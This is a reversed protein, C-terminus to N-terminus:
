NEFYVRKIRRNLTAYIEYPITNLKKSLSLVSNSGGFIEVPDGVKCVINSTDVIFSDMSINGIIPCLSGSIFVEGIYNGLRRNLGDAYGVPVVSINMKKKAIFSGSYGVIDGQMIDRKSSIVSSFTSIPILNQDSSSGFLSIGLRVMNLQHEPFNLFGYSNLIHKDIKVGLRNELNSSIKKFLKIQHTTNKPNKLDSASHLHSCVSKIKLFNNKKLKPLIEELQNEHFGYRNM